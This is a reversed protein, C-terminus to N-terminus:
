RSSPNSLEEYAAKFRREARHLLQGVSTEACGVAGAIERYPSASHRMLLIMRDRPVLQDLARRVTALDELDTLAQDPTPQLDPFEGAESFTTVPSRKARKLWDYCVRTVVTYLWAAPNELGSPRRNLYRFFTEQAADEASHRDGVLYLARRFVTQYLAALHEGEAATGREAKAQYTM